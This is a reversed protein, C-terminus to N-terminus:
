HSYRVPGLHCGPALVEVVVDHGSDIRGREIASEGSHAVAPREEDDAGQKLVGLTVAVQGAGDDADGGVDEGGAESFQLALSEDHGPRVGFPRAAEGVLEGGIASFEGARESEKGRPRSSELALVGGVVVPGAPGGELAARPTGSTLPADLGALGVVEVSESVGAAATGMRTIVVAIARMHEAQASIMVRTTQVM